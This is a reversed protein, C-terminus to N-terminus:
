TNDVCTDGRRVGPGGVLLENSYEQGKRSEFQPGEIRQRTWQVSQAIVPRAVNSILWFCNYNLLRTQHCQKTIFVPTDNHTRTRTCM